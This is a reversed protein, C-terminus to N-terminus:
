INSIRDPRLGTKEYEEYDPFDEPVGWEKLQGTMSYSVYIDACSREHAHSHLTPAKSTPLLFYLPFNQGVKHVRILKDQVMRNLLRTVGSYSTSFVKSLQESTLWKERALHSLIEDRKM